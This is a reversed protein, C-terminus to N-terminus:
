TSINQCKKRRSHLNRAFDLFRFGGAGLSGRPQQCLERALGGNFSYNVLHILDDVDMHGNGNFSMLIYYVVGEKDLGNHQSDVRADCVLVAEPETM